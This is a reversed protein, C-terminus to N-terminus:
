IWPPFRLSVANAGEGVGDGYLALRSGDMRNIIRQDPRSIDAHASASVATLGALMLATTALFPGIRHM